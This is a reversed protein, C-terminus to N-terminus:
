GSCSFQRKYVDISPLGSRMTTKKSECSAGPAMWMVRWSTYLLCAATATRKDGTIVVSDLTQEFTTYSMGYGFPYVVKSCVRSLTTM